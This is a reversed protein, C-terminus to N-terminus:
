AKQPSRHHMVRIAVLPVGVMLTVTPAMWHGILYLSTAEVAFTGWLVVGMAIMLNRAM